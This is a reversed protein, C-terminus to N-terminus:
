DERMSCNLFVLMEFVIRTMRWLSAVKKVEETVFWLHASPQSNLQKWSSNSLVWALVHFCNPFNDVQFKLSKIYNSVFQFIFRKTINVNFIWLNNIQILKSVYLRATELQRSQVLMSNLYGFWTVSTITKECHSWPLSCVKCFTWNRWQGNNRM